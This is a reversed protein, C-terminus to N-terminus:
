PAVWTDDPKLDPAPRQGWSNEEGQGLDKMLVTGTTDVYFTNAGTKGYICPTAFLGFEYLSNEVKADIFYYGQYGIRMSTADAMIKPILERSYLAKFTKCYGGDGGYNAKKWAKQATAYTKLAAVANAECAEQRSGRGRLMGLTELGKKETPTLDSGNGRFAIVALLVIVVAGMGGLIVKMKTDM